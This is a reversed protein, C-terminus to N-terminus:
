DTDYVKLYTLDGMVHERLEGRIDDATGQSRIGVMTVNGNIQATHDIHESALYTTVNDAFANPIEIIYGKEDTKQRMRDYAEEINDPPTQEVTNPIGTDTPINQSAPTADSEPPGEQGQVLEIDIDVGGGGTGASTQQIASQIDSIKGHLEFRDTGVLSWTIGMNDLLTKFEEDDVMPIRVTVNNEVDAGMGAYVDEISESIAGKSHKLVVNTKPNENSHVGGEYPGAEVPKININGKRKLSDPIPALNAGLDVRDLIEIPLTLPNTTFGPAHEVAVDVWFDTPATTAGAGLGDSMDGQSGRISKIATVRLNLDTKMLEEINARMNDGMGKIKPHKLANKKVTVVEGVLLGGQQYRTLTSETIEEFKGKFKM